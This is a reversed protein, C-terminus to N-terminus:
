KKEQLDTLNINRPRDMHELTILYVHETNGSEMAELIRTHEQCTEDMRGEHSLSLNALSTIRYFFTEFTSSFHENEVYEIILRHFKFDYESFEAIDKTTRSIDQMCSVISRLERFLKKAKRTQYEEAIKLTCYSELASRIQFTDEVDKKTLQHLRFGKSPIIDVYGEQALRHIADRLPTRSIGIEKATQTESYIEQYSFKSNTILEKLYLYAQENLPTMNKRKQM